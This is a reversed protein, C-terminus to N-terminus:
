RQRTLLCIFAIIRTGVGTAVLLWLCRNSNHIDYDYHKLAACRTMLWVGNYEKANAIIFAELAWKPFVFPTIVSAASKNNQNAILTLVVPLLVSWLQAQSFELSIALTYAIGTVCYVLCVLVIYNSGFSSRPYNFFYFLCLYVLPKMFTNIHDMTDKSLFYSLSKMGSSSERKYQLKDLSFTRLAGIMCLLSVAIVTYQYGTAGFTDDTVKAMTGLCAGALLLILYDAAQVRGDRTRQRLVRELYYKYQTFVGPTVRGSLDPTTFFNYTPVDRQIEGNYSKNKSESASPPSSNGSQDCLHLMDPPVRYGNHLMWKVPLQQATVDGEPKTIGELVDILYDPTNVRDPITIGLGAFYEEVKKVPGHYVTLGGKALLILDDFMKYLTYSPQHVVMSVNVGELAERRLARLLLSSSSSDLGSTPEDLILLSPEMVMELGVNVRKKQGGSIGRKEVTGVKADRVGQLGLAEIVREIILVKDQKPLDASLRCRASFRLNEEVTLDGHVIDDQPVFGVIKKYSHISENKGNILIMGSMTCGTIKGTLASLFTTKGAGSPGMVASIRGPMIKGSVSRMICKQKGKLTLTLEKFAIEIKPRKRIDEGSRKALSLLGSFTINKNKEQMAKEKEIQGYAYKFIQSKTQLDKKTKIKKKKLNKDGIELNLDENNSSSDDMSQLMETLKDSERRSGTSFPNPIKSKLDHRASAKRSFTQSLHQQLGQLGTPKKAMNRAAQWRERAQATERVHRAAAERSKAQREYRTSMLQDSCNYVVILIATLLGILMIGFVKMSPIDTGKECRSGAFCPKSKVSGMRCFRGKPCEIKDVTTPCYYGPQCFIDSGMQVPGWMDAAGCTHNPKGAPQQYHYPDCFGSQRNLKAVPCYAGLPCPIMCTLGQPCFFGECCPQSDTTRFPMKRPNTENFEYKQDPNVASAWGAECGGTWSTLNCNRNPELFHAQSISKTDDDVKKIFSTFYARLEAATCLRNSLDIFKVQCNRFFEDKGKFNFAGNIDKEVDETCYHLTRQISAKYIRISKNFRQSILNSFLPSIRPRKNNRPADDDADDQCWVCRPLYGVFVLIIILCGVWSAIVVRKEGNM